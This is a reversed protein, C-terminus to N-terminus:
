KTDITFHAGHCTMAHGNGCNLGINNSKFFLARQVAIGRSDMMVDFNGTQTSECNGKGM